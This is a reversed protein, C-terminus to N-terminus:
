REVAADKLTRNGKFPPLGSIDMRADFLNKLVKERLKEVKRASKGHSVASLYNLYTKTVEREKQSITSMYSGPDDMNQALATSAFLCIGMALAAMRRFPKVFQMM